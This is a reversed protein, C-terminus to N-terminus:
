VTLSRLQEKIKERDWEDTDYAKIAKTVKWKDTGYITAVASHQASSQATAAVQKATALARLSSWYASPM